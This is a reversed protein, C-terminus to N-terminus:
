VKNLYILDKINNNLSHVYINFIGIEYTEGPSTNGLINQLNRIIEFQNNDLKSGDFSILIDNNKENDYPKIRDYLDFSTNPQEKTIYPEITHAFKYDAYITDCWPELHYLLDNTCNKIIFGVNFRNDSNMSGWKRIFNRNSNRENQQYNGQRSTQSVLHYVCADSIICKFGNLRYRINLDDDACWM